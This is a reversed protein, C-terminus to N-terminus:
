KDNVMIKIYRKLYNKYKNNYNKLYAKFILLIILVKSIFLKRENILFIKNNKEIQWSKELENNLIFISTLM